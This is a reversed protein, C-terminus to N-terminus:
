SSLGADVENSECCTKLSIYQAKHKDQVGDPPRHAFDGVAEGM